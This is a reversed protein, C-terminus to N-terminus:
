RGEGKRKTAIVGLTIAVAAALLPISCVAIAALIIVVEALNTRPM